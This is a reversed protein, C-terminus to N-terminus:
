LHDADLLPMRPLMAWLWKLTSVVQHSTQIVSIYVGGTYPAPRFLFPTLKPVSTYVIVFLM